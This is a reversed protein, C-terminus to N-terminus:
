NLVHHSHGTNEGPGKLLAPREAKQKCNILIWQCKQPHPRVVCTRTTACRTQPHPPVVLMRTGSNRTTACYWEHRTTDLIERSPHCSSALRSQQKIETFCNSWSSFFPRRGSGSSVWTSRLMLPCPDVWRPHAIKWPQHYGFIVTTLLSHLTADATLSGTFWYSHRKTLSYPDFDWTFSNHSLIEFLM